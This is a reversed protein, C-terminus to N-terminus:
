IVIDSGYAAKVIDLASPVVDYPVKIEKGAYHVGNIIFEVERNFKLVVETEISAVPAQYGEAGGVKAQKKRAMIKGGLQKELSLFLNEWNKVVESWAYQELARKRGKVVFEERYKKDTLLKVVAQIFKKDYEEWDGSNSLVIGNKGVTTKL